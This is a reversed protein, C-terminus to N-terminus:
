TLTRTFVLSNGFTFSKLPGFPHYDGGSALTASASGSNKKTTV